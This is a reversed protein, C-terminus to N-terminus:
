SADFNIAAIEMIEQRDEQLLHGARIAADLSIEFKALYDAKGGPYLRSLTEEDFPVGSGALRGIFTSPDGVGSMRITPVDVWPTRVGGMALGSGDLVLSPPAGPEAALMIPDVSKPARNTMIWNDIGSLAAQLVYHHPMGPNLPTDVKGMPSNNSPRFVRALTESGTLGSDIFAGMFLYNDAHAAGPLEWVRLNEGDARRAGHYGTLGSGLLDTETILALVPVRLNARFRVHDPVKTGSGAMRNGDIPAASGFRSHVLFGDYVKALPDVANVYTTLFAASQSEGVAIVRESSLPGLVGGSGSSKILAGAQSFIDFSFADGPHSLSGYREPDAKKLPVAASNAMRSNGGEVGVIQASVAVYANGSRVMERHAVMWDAPADQGSTVNVWEVIVTGNFRAPDIPTLAVIRTVYDASGGVEAQWNGDLTAPGTLEYSKATGSIFFEDAQYGVDKIDYAALLLNPTGPVARVTEPAALQTEVPASHVCAGLGLPSFM